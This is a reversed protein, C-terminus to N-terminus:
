DLLDPTVFVSPLRLELGPFLAVVDILDDGRYTIVMRDGRKYQHLEKPEPYIVWVQESGADLYDRVKELLEQADDGPSMIEIALDPCGPFPRKIDWDKPINAKRIFSVDPVFADRLDDTTGQIRYLLSDGFVLGLKNATAYPKLIDYLNNTIIAHLGGVAMSEILEGHIVEYKKDRTDLQLLADESIQTKIVMDAM